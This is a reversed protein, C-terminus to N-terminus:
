LEMVENIKNVIDTKSIIDNIPLIKHIYDKSIIDLQKITSNFIQEIIKYSNYDWLENSFDKFDNSNNIKIKLYINKEDEKVNVNSFYYVNSIMADSNFLSNTYLIVYM